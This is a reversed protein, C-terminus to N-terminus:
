QAIFLYRTGPVYGRISPNRLGPSALSNGGLQFNIVAYGITTARSSHMRASKGNQKEKQQSTATPTPSLSSLSWDAGACVAGWCAPNPEYSADAHQSDTTSTTTSPPSRPYIRRPESLANLMRCVNRSRTTPITICWVRGCGVSRLCFLCMNGVM